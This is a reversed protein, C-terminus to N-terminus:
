VKLITTGGLGDISREYSHGSKRNDGAKRQGVCKFTFSWMYTISKHNYKQYGINIGVTMCTHAEPTGDSIRLGGRKKM